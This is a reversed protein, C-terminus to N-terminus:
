WAWVSSWRMRSWGQRCSRCYPSGPPDALPQPLSKQLSKLVTQPRLPLLAADPHQLTGILFDLDFFRENEIEQMPETFRKGFRDPRVIQMPKDDFAGRANEISVAARKVQRIAGAQLKGRCKDGFTARRKDINRRFNQTLGRGCRHRQLTVQPKM